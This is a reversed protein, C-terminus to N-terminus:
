PIFWSSDGFASIDTRAEAVLNEFYSMDISDEKGLAKCVDAEM